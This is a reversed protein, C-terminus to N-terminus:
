GKSPHFTASVYRRPGAFEVGCRQRVKAALSKWVITATAPVASEVRRAHVSM